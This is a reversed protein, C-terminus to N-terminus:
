KLAQVRYRRNLCSGELREIESVSLPVLNGVLHELTEFSEENLLGHCTPKRALSFLEILLLGLALSLLGVNLIVTGCCLVLNIKILERREVSLIHFKVSVFSFCNNIFFRGFLLLKFM